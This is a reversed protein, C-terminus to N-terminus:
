WRYEICWNIKGYYCIKGTFYSRSPSQLSNSIRMKRFAQLVEETTGQYGNGIYLVALPNQEIAAKIITKNEKFNPPLHKLFLGDKQVLTLAVHPLSLISPSIKALCSPNQQGLNLLYSKLQDIRGRDGVDIAALLAKELHRLAQELFYTNNKLEKPVLALLIPHTEIHALLINPYQIIIKRHQMIMLRIHYTNEGDFQILAKKLKILDQKNVGNKLYLSNQLITDISLQEFPICYGERVLKERLLEKIIPTLANRGKLKFTTYDESLDGLQAMIDATDTVLHEQIFRNFATIDENRITAGTEPWDQFFNDKIKQLLEVTLITDLEEEYDQNFLTPYEKNFFQVISARDGLLGEYADQIEREIRIGLGCEKALKIMISTVHVELGQRVDHTANYMDTIRTILLLRARSLTGMADSINALLQKKQATNLKFRPDVTTYLFYFNEFYMICADLPLNNGNVATTKRTDQFGQYEGRKAIDFQKFQNLLLDWKVVTSKSAYFSSLAQLSINKVDEYEDLSM